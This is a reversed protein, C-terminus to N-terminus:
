RKLLKFISCFFCCGKKTAPSTASMPRLCQQERSYDTASMRADTQHENLARHNCYLTLTNLAFLVSLLCVSYKLPKVLHGSFPRQPQLMNARSVQGELQQTLPLYCQGRVWCPCGPPTLHPRPLLLWKQLSIKNRELSTKSNSNKKKTKTISPNLSPRM